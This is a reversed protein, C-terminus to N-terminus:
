KMKSLESKFKNTVIKHYETLVITRPHTDSLEYRSFESHEKFSADLVINFSQYDVVIM